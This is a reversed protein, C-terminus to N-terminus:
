VRNGALKRAGEAFAKAKMLTATSNGSLATRVFTRAEEVGADPGLIKTINETNIIVTHQSTASTGTSDEELRWYGTHLTMLAPVVIQKYVIREGPFCVRVSTTTHTSGDKTRTDMSLLQLGPVDESLKVAAVHPLRETWRQAENLFDYVDQASGDIHVTDEFSLVLSGDTVLEVSKKLAALESRSNRDVAQEIWELGAPDDDVARYDHLLRVRSTAPSIAEVIWTGGMTAVPPASVEQRFEIRMAKPDLVRRSTWTKASGNATAWIRIRESGEGRELHEVHITPPFLRPWNEVEAILRYVAPAPAAIEVAHEVQRFGEDSM